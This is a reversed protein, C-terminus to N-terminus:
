ILCVLTIASLMCCLMNTDISIGWAGVNSKPFCFCCFQFHSSSTIGTTHHPFHQHILSSYFCGPLLPSAIKSSAMRESCSGQVRTGKDSLCPRAPRKFARFHTHRTSLLTALIAATPQSNSGIACNVTELFHM